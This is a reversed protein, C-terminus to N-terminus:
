QQSGSPLAGFADLDMIQPLNEISGTGLFVEWPQQYLANYEKTTTDLEIRLSKNIMSDPLLPDLALIRIAEGGVLISERLAELSKLNKQRRMSSKLRKVGRRYGQELASRNWLLALNLALDDSYLEKPSSYILDTVGSMAEVLESISERSLALNDPRVLMRDEVVKFGLRLGTEILSQWDTKRIKLPPHICLWRQNWEKIRDEGKSWDDIWNRVPNYATTIQYFGREDAEIFGRSALRSLTVRVSNESINFMCAVHILKKVPWATSKTSRLLDLLLNKATIERLKM